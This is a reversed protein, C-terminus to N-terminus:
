GPSLDPVNPSTDNIDKSNISVLGAILFFLLLLLLFPRLPRVSIVVM